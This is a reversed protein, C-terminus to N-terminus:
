YGRQRADIETCHAPNLYGSPALCMPSPMETLAEGVLM